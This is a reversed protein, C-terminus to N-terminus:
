MLVGFLMNKRTRVEYGRSILAERLFREPSEGGREPSVDIAIRSPRLSGLGEFVEIEFGEAEIKVFDLSDLSANRVFKEITTVDVSVTKGTGGVDPKLFSHKVNSRSLKLEMQTAKSGLGAPIVHINSFQDANEKLCRVNLPAPEFSYVAGAMGAVSMSFGGVFAGCDLVTDGPKVECFGPESYKRKLWESYEFSIPIFTKPALKRPFRIRHGNQDITVLEPGLQWAFGTLDRTRSCLEAVDRLATAEDVAGKAKRRIENRVSQDLPPFHAM